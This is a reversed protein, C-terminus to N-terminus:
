QILPHYLHDLHHQDLLDVLHYPHDLHVLYDLIVLYLLLFLVCNLCEFHQLFCTHISYYYLLGEVLLLM